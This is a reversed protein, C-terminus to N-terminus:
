RRKPPRLIINKSWDAMHQTWQTGAVYLTVAVNYPLYQTYIQNLLVIGKDNIKYNDGLDIYNLEIAFDHHTKQYFEAIYQCTKNTLKTCQSLMLFQLNHCKKAITDLLIAICKDTINSNNCLSIGILNSQSKRNLLGACIRHIDRDQLNNNELGLWDIPCHRPIHCLVSSVWQALEGSRNKCDRIILQEIDCPMTIHLVADQARENVFVYDARYNELLVQGKPRDDDYEFKDGEAYLDLVDADDDDADDEDNEKNDQAHHHGKEDEEDDSEIEKADEADHSEDDSEIEKAKHEMQYREKRKRREEVFRDWFQIFYKLQCRQTLSMTEFKNEHFLLTADHEPDVCNWFNSRWYMNDVEFHDAFTFTKLGCKRQCYTCTSSLVFQETHCVYQLLYDHWITDPLLEFKRTKIQKKWEKIDSKIREREIKSTISSEDDLLVNRTTFKKFLSQRDVSDSVVSPSMADWVSSNEPPSTGTLSTYTVSPTPPMEFPLDPLLSSQQTLHTTLNLTREQKHDDLEQRGLQMKASTVFTKLQLFIPEFDPEPENDKADPISDIVCEISDIYSICVQKLANLEADDIHDVNVGNIDTANDKSTQPLIAKPNSSSKARYAQQKTTTTSNGM